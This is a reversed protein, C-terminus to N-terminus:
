ISFETFSNFASNSSFSVTRFSITSLWLLRSSFISLRLASIISFMFFVASILLAKSLVSVRRSCNAELCFWISFSFFSSSEFILSLFICLLDMSNFASCHESSNSSSLLSDFFSSFLFDTATFTASLILCPSPSFFLLSESFCDFSLTRESM